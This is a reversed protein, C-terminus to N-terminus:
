WRGALGDPTTIERAFVSIAHIPCNPVDAPDPDVEPLDLSVGEAGRFLLLEEAEDYYLRPDLAMADRVIMGVEIQGFLKGRYGAFASLRFIKGNRVDAASEVPGVRYVAEFPRELRYWARDPLQQVYHADLLGQIEALSSRLRLGGLGQNPVIPSDATLSLTKLM